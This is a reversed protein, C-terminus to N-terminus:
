TEQANEVFMRVTYMVWEKPMAEFCAQVDENSFIDLRPINPRPISDIDFRPRTLYYYGVHHVSRMEPECILRALQKVFFHKMQSSYSHEFACKTFTCVVKLRSAKSAKCFKGELFREDKFIDYLEDKIKNINYKHAQESIDVFVDQRLM